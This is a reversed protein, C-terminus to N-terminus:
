ILVRQFKQFIKSLPVCDVQVSDSFGIKEAVDTEVTNMPSDGSKYLNIKGEHTSCAAELFIDRPRYEEFLDRYRPSPDVAVGSWGLEYLAWTNSIICPHHAGVDVYYGPPLGNFNSVIKWNKNYFYALVISDEGFQSYSKRTDWKDWFFNDKSM